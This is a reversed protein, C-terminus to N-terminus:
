IKWFDHDPPTPFRDQMDDIELVWCDDDFESTRKIYADIQSEELKEHMEGLPNKWQLHGDFDRQQIYLTATRSPKAIKVMIVGSDEFGTKMVYPAFGMDTAKRIMADLRFKSKLRAEFMM